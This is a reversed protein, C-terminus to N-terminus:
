IFLHSHRRDSAPGGGRGRGTVEEHGNSATEIGRGTWDGHKSHAQGMGSTCGGLQSGNEWKVLGAILSNEQREYSQKSPWALRQKGRQKTTTRKQEADCPKERRKWRM